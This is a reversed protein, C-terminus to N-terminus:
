TDFTKHRRHGRLVHGHRDLREASAIGKCAHSDKCSYRQPRCLSEPANSFSNGLFVHEYIGLVHGQLHTHERQVTNKAYCLICTCVHQIGIMVLHDVALPLFMREYSALLSGQPIVEVESAHKHELAARESPSDPCHLGIILESGEIVEPEPHLVNDMDIFVQIRLDLGVVSFRAFLLEIVHIRSVPGHLNLHFLYTGFM